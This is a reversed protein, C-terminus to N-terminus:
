RVFVDGNKLGFENYDGSILQLSNNETRKFKLEDSLWNHGTADYCKLELIVTDESGVFTYLDGKYGSWFIQVYKQGNMTRVVDDSNLPYKWKDLLCYSEVSITARSDQGASFRCVFASSGDYKQRSEETNFFTWEKQSYLSDWNKAKDMPVPESHPKPKSSVAPKVASSTSKKSSSSRNAEEAKSASEAKNTTQSSTSQSFSYLKKNKQVQKSSVVVQQSEKLVINGSSDVALIDNTVVKGTKSDLINGHDDVTYFQYVSYDASSSVTQSVTRSSGSDNTGPSQKSCGCM